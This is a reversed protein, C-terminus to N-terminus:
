SGGLARAVADGLAAATMPKRLLERIGIERIRDQTFLSSNGTALIVPLNARISAVQSAFEAGSLVPMTLDTIVVDFDAPSARIADLADMPSTFSTVRYGMRELLRTCVRTIAPEDDVFLVHQGEGQAAPKAPEGTAVLVPEGDQAPLYIHFTSGKGPESEVTLAGGHSKVIGFAVSLGLGTGRGAEKTTFFPEFIRELTARDMGSGTDRVSLRVYLGPHLDPSTTAAAIGDFAVLDQRLEVAGQNEGIAHWANTCLNVLVRHIQPTDAQVPAAKGDLSLIIDITHPLTARVFKAADRVVPALLVLARRESQPQSFTLMQRVLDAARLSSAHIQQLADEVQPSTGEYGRALEVNGTIANLINNFDHAIGGALTGIAELKQSERLKAEIQRHAREAKLRETADRFSWVRGGISDGLFQPRSYREFVRGDKFSVVDFSEADPQAYLDQVKALFVAPDQLQDLIFGITRLDDKTALIETPIRWLDLFRRNYHTIRGASSVVLIGDATSELTSELVSIASRLETEARLRESIDILSARIRFRSTSPLRVLRVECPIEAGSSHLHTWRFAPSDGGAVLSLHRKVAERSLQGDPQFEPSLDAPTLRLLEDVSRGFLRAANKNVEVYRKEDVDYLMIAEPANDVLTRFRDESEALEATRKAVHEELQATALTLKAQAQKREHITLATMVGVFTLPTMYIWFRLLSEEPFGSDARLGHHVIGLLGIVAVLCLALTVGHRGFRLAAWAVTLFIAADALGRSVPDGQLEFFMLQGAIAAIGFCAIAEGARNRNLWDPPWIHWVTVLPVVLLIGFFDGEFWHVANAAADEPGIDRALLLTAIGITVAVCVSAAGAAILAFYDRSRKFEAHFDFAKSVLAHCALAELTNGIGIGLSVGASSGAALNGFFAGALIGPWYSRGWLILAAVAIGSPPWVISVTHNSSLFALAAKAVLAYGAALGLHRLVIRPLSLPPRTM